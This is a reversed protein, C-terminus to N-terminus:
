IQNLERIATRARSGKRRATPFSSNEQRGIDCLADMAVQAFKELREIREAVAHHTPIMEGNIKVESM